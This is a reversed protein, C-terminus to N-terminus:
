VPTKPSSVFYVSTYPLKGKTYEKCKKKEHGEASLRTLTDAASSLKQGM